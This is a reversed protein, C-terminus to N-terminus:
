LDFVLRAGELPGTRGDGDPVRPEDVLVKLAAEPTPLRLRFSRLLRGLGPEIEAV